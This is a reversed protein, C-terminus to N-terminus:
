TLQHFRSRILVRVPIKEQQKGQPDWDWERVAHYQEGISMRELVPENVSVDNPETATFLHESWFLSLVATPALEHLDCERAALFNGFRLHRFGETADNKPGLSLPSTKRHENV